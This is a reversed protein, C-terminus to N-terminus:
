VRAITQNWAAQAGARFTITDAAFAPTATFGIVALLAALMAVVAAGAVSGRVSRVGTQSGTM